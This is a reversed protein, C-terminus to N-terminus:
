RRRPDVTADREGRGIAGIANPVYQDRQEPPHKVGDSEDAMGRRHIRGAPTLPRAAQGRACEEAVTLYRAVAEPGVVYPHPEGPKRRATAPLKLVSGDFDTHNSLIVDARAAVAASRFEQASATYRDFWFSDPREPTIYGARNRVWNFATGGWRAASRM